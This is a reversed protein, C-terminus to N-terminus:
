QKVLKFSQRTTESSIVAVYVGQSLAATAIETSGSLGNREQVLQGQLTYIAINYDTQPTVIHLLDHVPNPYISFATAAVESASLISDEVLNVTLDDFYFGDGRVGGDSRLQFRILVNEGLYESLDIEELVWEDQTGDYLPEGTPQSGNNSGPNTFKGCQPIWTSGNNTSVEVQVYDFNNEIEWKAYFTVNAGLADTLDIPDSLAITENTDNPYNGSPSDTISSPASVFEATTVGWGNNDFNDSTSNGADEFIASLAGFRKEILQSTEYAGNAVILRYSVLDNSQTGPSLTYSIAGSDEELIDLANFSVPSGVASINGSVAEIRVTFDGDGSLGLRKIDFSATATPQDGTYQPATDDLQAYNGSVRAATLNMYMMDKCIGEIQSSPPWFSPGIEPTMAFIKDHTGVTGYFFDDSDGAAPYLESSLINAFGNQSVMEASIAKFIPDDVTPQNSTYGHPYLLLDGSTHANLNVVFNHNEAFWKMAQNEVESFPATGRYTESSPNGSSGEGGWMGNSPDGDIFYEYNRNNDVGNGNNRNKRWFGGGSPNTKENYLYGDPNIVPVFYLETNDLLAAIEPDSDYNELLYWMYFVLQSLSAPERAHHIATYLVQPEGESTSTPNDSIKVWKIGNGGIPPTTSADPQGETLFTSINSSETILNPYLAHMEDLEDLLEQYTLYGGMSGLEFNTPTAYDITGGGTCTPNKSPPLNLRNQALFHAKADEILIDVQFGANRIKAVESVSFESIFFHNKKHIGHEMPVGLSAIAILDQPTNYHIKARQYVEQEFQGFLLTTVLLLCSLLVSKM